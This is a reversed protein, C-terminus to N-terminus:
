DPSFYANVVLIMLCVVKKTIFKVFRLIFVAFNGTLKERCAQLVM